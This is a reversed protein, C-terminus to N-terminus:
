SGNVTGSLVGTAEGDVLFCTLTADRKATVPPLGSTDGAVDGKHLRQGDLSVVSDLM